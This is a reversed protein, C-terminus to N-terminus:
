HKRRYGPLSPKEGHALTVPHVPAQPATYRRWVAFGRRIGLMRMQALLSVREM